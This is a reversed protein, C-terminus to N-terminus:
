MSFFTFTEAREGFCNLMRLRLWEISPNIRPSYQRGIRKIEVALEEIDQCEVVLERPLEETCSKYSFHYSGPFFHEHQYKKFHTDIAQILQQYYAPLQKPNNQLVELLRLGIPKGLSIEASMPHQSSSRNILKEYLRVYSRSLEDGIELDRIVFRRVRDIVKQIHNEFTFIETATQQLISLVEIEEVSQLRKLLAPEGHCFDVTAVLYRQGATALIGGHLHSNLLPMSCAEEVKGPMTIAGFFDMARKALLLKDNSIKM